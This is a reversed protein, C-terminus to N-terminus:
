RGGGRRTAARSSAARSTATRSAVAEDPQATPAPTEGHELAWRAQAAEVEALLSRYSARELERRLRDVATEPRPLQEPKGPKAGGLAVVGTAVETLRDVMATMLAVEPTFERLQPRPRATPKPARALAEAVEPDNVMAERYASSM